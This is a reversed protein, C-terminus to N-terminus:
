LEASAPGALPDGETLGARLGELEELRPQLLGRLMKKTGARMLPPIAVCMVLLAWMSPRLVGDTFWLPKLGLFFGALSLGVQWWGQEARRARSQTQRISLALVESLSQGPWPRFSGHSWRHILVALVPVGVLGPAIWRLPGHLGFRSGIVIVLAMQLLSLLVQTADALDQGFRYRRGDRHIRDALSLGSRDARISYMGPARRGLVLMLGFMLAVGAGFSLNWEYIVRVPTHPGLRTYFVIAAVVAGIGMALGFMVLVMTRRYGRQNRQIRELLKADLPAAQARAKAPYQEKWAAQMDEFNM